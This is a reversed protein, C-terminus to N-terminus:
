HMLFFTAFSNRKHNLFPSDFDYSSFYIAAQDHTSSPHYGYRITLLPAATARANDSVKDVVAKDRELM